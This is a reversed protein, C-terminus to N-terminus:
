AGRLIMCIANGKANFRVEDMLRQILFLGRGTELSVREPATPDPVAGPDFGPGEDAVEIEVCQPGSRVHIMVSKSPDGGNGYEMANALAEALAVRLNFRLTREDPFGAHLHSCIVEIADEVLALDSPITMTLQTSFGHPAAALPTVAARLAPHSSGNM